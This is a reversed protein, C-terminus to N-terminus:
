DDIWAKLDKQILQSLSLNEERFESRLFNKTEEDMKKGSGESLNWDYIRDSLASRFKRFPIALRIM